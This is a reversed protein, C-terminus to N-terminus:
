DVMATSPPRRITLVICSFQKYSRRRIYIPRTDPDKLAERFNVDKM